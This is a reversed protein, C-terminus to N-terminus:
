PGGDTAAGGVISAAAELSAGVVIGRTGGAVLASQLTIVVPRCSLAGGAITARATLRSGGVLTNEPPVSALDVELQHLNGPSGGDIAVDTVAPPAAYVWLNGGTLVSGPTAIGTLVADPVSFALFGGLQGAYHARVTQVQASTLLPFTLRLRQGVLATSHRVRVESGNLVLHPSHPYVGPTFTRGSPILDGPFAAM